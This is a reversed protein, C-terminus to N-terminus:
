AQRASFIMSAKIGWPTTGIRDVLPSLTPAVVTDIGGHNPESALVVNRNPVEPQSYLGERVLAQLRIVLVEGPGPAVEAAILRHLVGPRM